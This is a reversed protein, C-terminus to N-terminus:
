WIYPVIRKTRAAYEAYGKYKEKLLREEAFIRVFLGTTALLGLLGNLWSLHSFIGSWLFYLVAAYIPHRLYNYPGSTELGGETPNAAAHFSRLGFTIRAWIMLLVALIQVIIAILSVALISEQMILIVIVLVAAIFGAISAFKLIM